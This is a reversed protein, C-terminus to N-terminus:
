ADSRLAEAPNLHAARLSPYITALISIAVSIAGILLVESYNLRTPITALFYVEPNFIQVHFLNQLFTVIADLHMTVFVGLGAGFVTGALGIASGAMLFIRLISAQSAGITKMIAIDKTKDKVLMVLGSIINFSAILVILILILFMVNREIRMAQFLHSDGHQWGIVRYRTNEIIKRIDGVIKDNKEINGTFVEIQTLEGPLDFFSQATELPMLIVSKDYETMGVEFTGVIEFDQQRPVTGFPTDEGQPSIVTIRDGIHLFMVDAMRKGIIVSDGTFAGTFAGISFGPKLQLSDYIIARKQLYQPAMSLIMAGRSQEQASVIAQREIMPCALTVGPCQQIGQIVRNDANINGMIGYVMAHGKMGLIRSLLEERFGGMVSMVIILTAVGICIGVFSFIAIVPLFSDRNRSFIYRRAILKEWLLSKAWSIGRANRKNYEV